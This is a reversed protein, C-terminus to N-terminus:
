RCNSNAVAVLARVEFFVIEPNARKLTKGRSGVLMM